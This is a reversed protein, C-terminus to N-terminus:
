GDPGTRGSRGDSASASRSSVPTMRAAVSASLPTSPGDARPRPVDVLRAALERGAIRSARM